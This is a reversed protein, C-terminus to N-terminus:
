ATSAGGVSIYSVLHRKLCNPELPVKGEAVGEERLANEFLMYAKDHAPGFRDIFDKVSGEPALVYVPAAVIIADAELVKNALEEYDDKQVCRIQEKGGELMRSCAGCGLCRNIKLKITDIVEIEVNPDAQRASEVAVELFEKCQAKVRGFNLALLKM